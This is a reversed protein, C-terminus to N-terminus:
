EPKPNVVEGKSRQIAAIAKKMQDQMMIVNINLGAQQKVVDLRNRRDNRIYMAARLRTNDDAETHGAAIQYIVDLALKEQADDFCLTEDKKCARRYLASGQMLVSKVAVIDLEQDESIQEPSLGLEEYATIIQQNAATV